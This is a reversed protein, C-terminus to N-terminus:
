RHEADFRAYSPFFIQAKDYPPVLFTIAHVKKNQFGPSRCNGLLRLSLTFALQLLGCACGGSCTQLPSLYRCGPGTKDPCAEWESATRSTALM